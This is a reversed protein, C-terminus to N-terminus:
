KMEKKLEAIQNNVKLEFMEVENIFDVYQNYSIAKIEDKLYLYDDKRKALFEKVKELQKVAFSIKDQDKHQLEFELETIKNCEDVGRKLCIHRQEKLQEIEKDKEALQHQMDFYKNQFHLTEQEATHLRDELQENDKKYEALSEKLDKIEVDDCLRFDYVQECYEIIPNESYEPTSDADIKYRTLFESVWEHHKSHEALQQKLQQNEKYINSFYDIDIYKQDSVIVQSIINGDEDEDFDYKALFEDLEAIDKINYDKMIDEYEALQEKLEACEGAKENHWAKYREAREESEALQQKLKANEMPVKYNIFVEGNLAEVLQENRIESEALKAELDSITKDQQNLRRCITNISMFDQSQNQTDKVQRDSLNVYREKSM